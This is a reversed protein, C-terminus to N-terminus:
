CATRTTRSASVSGAGSDSSTSTSAGCALRRKAIGAHVMPAGVCMAVLATVLAPDISQM